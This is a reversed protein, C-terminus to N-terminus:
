LQNRKTGSPVCWGAVLLEVVMRVKERRTPALPSASIEEAPANADVVLYQNLIDRAQDYADAAVMLTRVNYLGIQMGPYLGGFGGNHIFYPIQHAVLAGAALVLETENQPQFVPVM